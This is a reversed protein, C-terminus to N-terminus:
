EAAHSGEKPAIHCDFCGPSIGLYNHCRDCFKSKDAHCSLCGSSLSKPYSVGVALVASRNGERVVEDRWRSLLVMHNARMFERSGVCEKKGAPLVPEKYEAARGSYINYWLPMGALGLFAALAIAIKVRDPM